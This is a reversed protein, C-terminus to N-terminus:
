NPEKLSTGYLQVSLLGWVNVLSWKQDSTKMFNLMCWSALKEPWISLENQDSVIVKSDDAFAFRDLQPIEFPLDNMFMFFLLPVLVSVQPVGSTVDKLKSRNHKM